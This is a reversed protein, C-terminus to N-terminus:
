KNNKLLYVYNSLLRLYHYKKSIFIKNEFHNDKLYEILKKYKKMYISYDNIDGWYFKYLDHIFPIKINIISENSQYNSYSINLQNFSYNNIVCIVFTLYFNLDQNLKLQYKKSLEQIKYIWHKNNFYNYFYEFSEDFSRYNINSSQNNNITQNINTKNILDNFKSPNINISIYHKIDIVQNNTFLWNLNELFEKNIYINDIFEDSINNIYIDKDFIFLLKLDKIISYLDSITFYKHIKNNYELNNSAKTDKNNLFNHFPNIKNVLFERFDVLYESNKSEIFEFNYLHFVYNLKETFEDITCLSIPLRKYKKCIFYIDDLSNNFLWDIFERTPYYHINMKIFNEIFDIFFDINLTHNSSLKYIFDEFEKNNLYFLCQYIIDNSYRLYYKKNTINKM